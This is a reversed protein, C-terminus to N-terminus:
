EAAAWAIAAEAAAPGHTTEMVEAALDEVTLLLVQDHRRPGTVSKIRLPVALQARPQNPVPEVAQGVELEPEAVVPGTELEPVAKEQVTELERVVAPVIVLERVEVPVIALEPVVAPVIILVLAEALDMAQEPVAGLVIALGLAVAGRVIVRARAAAQGIALSEAAPEREAVVRVLGPEALVQDHEPAAALAIVRNSALM